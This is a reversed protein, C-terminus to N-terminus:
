PTTLQKSCLPAPTLCNGSFGVTAWSTTVARVTERHQPRVKRKHAEKEVGSCDPHGAAPDCAASASAPTAGFLMSCELRARTAPPLALLAPLARVSMAQAPLTVTRAEGSRNLLEQVRSLHPPPQTLWPLSLASVVTPSRTSATAPVPFVPGPSTPHPRSAGSATPQSSASPPPAPPRHPLASHRPETVAREVASQSSGRCHAPKGGPMLAGAFGSVTM